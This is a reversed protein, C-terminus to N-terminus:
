KGTLLNYEALDIENVEDIFATDDEDLLGQNVAEHIISSKDPTTLGHVLESKFDEIAVGVSFGCGDEVHIHFYRTKM